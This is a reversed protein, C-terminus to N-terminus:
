SYTKIAAIYFSTAIYSCIYILRTSVLQPLACISLPALHFQVFSKKWSVELINPNGSICIILAVALHRAQGELGPIWMVYYTRTM